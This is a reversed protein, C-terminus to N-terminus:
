IEGLFQCKCPGSQDRGPRFFSAGGVNSAGIRLNRVKIKVNTVLCQFVAFGVLDVVGDVM